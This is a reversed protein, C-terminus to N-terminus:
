IKKRPRVTTNPNAGDRFPPHPIDVTTGGPWYMPNSPDEYWYRGTELNRDFEGAFRIVGAGFWFGTLDRGFWQVGRWEGVVVVRGTGTWVERGERTMERRVRGTVSSQGKVNSLLVTGTFSFELRGKGDLIKFSGLRTTFHMIDLGTPDTVGAKQAETAPQCWASATLTALSLLALLRRM